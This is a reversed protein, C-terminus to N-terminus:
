EKDLDKLKMGGEKEKVVWLDNEEDYNKVIFADTLEKVTVTDDVKIKGSHKAESKTCLIGIICIIVIATCLAGITQIGEDGSIFCIIALITFFIIIGILVHVSYKDFEGVYTM